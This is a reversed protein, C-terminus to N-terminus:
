ESLSVAERRARARSVAPATVLAGILRERRDRRDPRTSRGSTTQM